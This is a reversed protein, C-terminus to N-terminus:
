EDLLDGGLGSMMDMIRRFFNVGDDKEKHLENVIKGDKLFIIRNAYSAAVADHTVMLVTTDYEENIYKISEMLIKASCSDLAGTPEDALVLQPEHIMARACACRQKQGGSVQYPYKHLVQGIGFKEAVLNIRGEIEAPNVGNITLALAINEYLTLTDLLNYEQFIFGLNKRRFEALKKEKIKTTDEGNLYIHGDSVGDIASICNLLTTKGSGSSGMIAMFEGKNVAFSIDELATTRSAETEGYIKKVNEVHLIKDM